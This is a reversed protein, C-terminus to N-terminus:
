PVQAQALAYLDSVSVSGGSCQIAAKNASLYSAYSVAALSASGVYQLNAWPLFWLLGGTTKKFNSNGKQAYNCLFTEADSKYQGWLGSNGVKGELM